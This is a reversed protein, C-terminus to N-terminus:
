VGEASGGGGGTYAEDGPGLLASAVEAARQPTLAGTGLNNVLGSYHMWRQKHMATDRAYATGRKMRNIEQPKVLWQTWLGVLETALAAADEVSNATASLAVPSALARMSLGASTPVLTCRQKANAFWAEAPLYFSEIYAKNGVVDERATLDYALVVGAQGAIIDLTLHPVDYNPAVQASVHLYSATPADLKTASCWGIKPLGLYGDVTGTVGEQLIRAGLGDAHDSKPTLPVVSNIQAVLSTKLQDLGANMHM